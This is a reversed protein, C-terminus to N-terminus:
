HSQTQSEKRLVVHAKEALQHYHDTILAFVSSLDVTHEDQPRFYTEIASWEDMVARFNDLDNLVEEVPKSALSISPNQNIAEIKM